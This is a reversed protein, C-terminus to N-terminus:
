TSQRKTLIALLWDDVVEVHFGVYSGIREIEAPTYFYMPYPNRFFEPSSFHNLALMHEDILINPIQLVFKAGPRMARYTEKLYNLVINKPIHQFVRCSYALDFSESDVPLAYGNGLHVRVNPLHALNQRAQRLMERSIDVGHMERCHPAVHYMIRGIGCGIELAVADDSLYPRLMALENEGSKWFDDVGYAVANASDAAASREWFDRHSEISESELSIKELSKRRFRGLLRSVQTM